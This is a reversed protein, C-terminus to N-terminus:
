NSYGMMELFEKYDIVGDGNKDAEDFTNQIVTSSAGSLYNTAEAYTMSDETNKTVASSDESVSDNSM